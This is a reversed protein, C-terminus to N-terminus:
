EGGLLRALIGADAGAAAGFGTIKRDLRPGSLGSAYARRVADNSGVSDLLLNMLRSPDRSETVPAYSGGFALDREAAALQAPTAGSSALGDAMPRVSGPDIAVPRGGHTGVNGLIRDNLELNSKALTSDLEDMKTLMTNPDRKRWYAADDVNGAFPTREVRGVTGVDLTSNAPLVGEAIPRGPNGYAGQGVRIVEGSPARFAVAENGSGIIKSNPPIESLLRRLDGPNSQAAYSNLMARAGEGGEGINTVGSIDEVLNKQIAGISAREQEFNSLIRAEEGLDHMRSWEEPRVVASQMAPDYMESRNMDDLKNPNFRRQERTFTGPVKDTLDNWTSDISKVRGMTGGSDFDKAMRMIDDETTAFGPGRAVAATNANRGLLRGLGAGAFMLPDLAVETGINGITSLLSGDDMGTLDQGSVRNAKDTLGLSDSFPIAALLEEPRGGLLGRVARGPKDFTDGLYGLADLISM